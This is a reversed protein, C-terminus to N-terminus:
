GSAQRFSKTLTSAISGTRYRRDCHEALAVNDKSALRAEYKSPRQPGLGTWFGCQPPPVYRAEEAIVPMRKSRDFLIM